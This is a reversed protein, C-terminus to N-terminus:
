WHEAARQAPSPETFEEGNAKAREYRELWEQWARREELLAERRGEKLGEERGQQRGEEFRRRRYREAFLVVVEVTALLTIATAVAASVGYGISIITDM